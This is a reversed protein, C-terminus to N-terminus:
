FAPDAARALELGPLAAAFVVHCAAQATAESEFGGNARRKGVVINAPEDFIENQLAADIGLEDFPHRKVTDTADDAVAEVEGFAAETHAAGHANRVAAVGGRALELRAVEIPVVDEAPQSHTPKVGATDEGRETVGRRRQHNFADLFGLLVPGNNRVVEVITGGEPLANATLFARLRDVLLDGLVNVHHDAVLLIESSTEAKM